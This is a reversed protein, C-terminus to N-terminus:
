LVVICYYYTNNPFKFDTHVRLIHLTQILQWNVQWNVKNYYFKIIFNNYYFNYNYYFM